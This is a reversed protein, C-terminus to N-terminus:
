LRCDRYKNWYLKEWRKLEELAATPDESSFVQERLTQHEYFRQMAEVLNTASYWPWRLCQSLNLGQWRHNQKRPQIIKPWVSALLKLADDATLVDRSLYPNTLGSWYVPFYQDIAEEPSSFCTSAVIGDVDETWIAGQLINKFCFSFSFGFM